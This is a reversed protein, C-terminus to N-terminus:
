KEANVKLMILSGRLILRKNQSINHHNMFILQFMQQFFTTDLKM